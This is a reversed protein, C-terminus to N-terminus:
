FSLTKDQISSDRIVTKGSLREYELLIVPIATNPFQILPNKPEVPAQQQAFSWEPQFLFIAITILSWVMAASLRFANM